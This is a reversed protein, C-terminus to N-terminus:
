GVILWAMSLYVIADAVAAEAELRKEEELKALATKSDEDRTQVGIRENIFERVTKPSRVALEAKHKVV